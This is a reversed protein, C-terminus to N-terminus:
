NVDFKSYYFCFKKGKPSEEHGGNKDLFLYMGVLIKREKTHYKYAERTPSSVVLEYWVFDSHGKFYVGPYSMGTESVVKGLALGAIPGTNSINQDLPGM